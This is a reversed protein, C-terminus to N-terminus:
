RKREKICVKKEEWFLCYTKSAFIDMLYSVGLIFQSIGPIMGYSLQSVVRKWDNCKLRAASM